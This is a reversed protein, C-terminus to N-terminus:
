VSIKKKQLNLKAPVMQLTTSEWKHNQCQFMQVSVKPSQCNTRTCSNIMFGNVMDRSFNMMKVKQQQTAAM